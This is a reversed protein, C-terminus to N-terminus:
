NLKKIYFVVYLIKTHSQFTHNPNLIELQKGRFLLDHPRRFKYLHLAASNKKWLLATQASIISTYNKGEIFRHGVM